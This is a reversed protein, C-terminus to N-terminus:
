KKETSPTAETISDFSVLVANTTVSNGIYFVGEGDIVYASCYLEQSKHAEETIGTVKVNYVNYATASFSMSIAGDVASLSDNILKGDTSVTKKAAIIGYSVTNGTIGEYLAIAEKNAVFGYDFFTGGLEKSYGKNTFLAETLVEVVEDGCNECTGTKCYNSLYKEGDFGYTPEGFNHENSYFARCANYGYVVYNKNEQAATDKYFQDDKTEDWEVATANVFKGNNKLTTLIAKLAEYDEYDGTYFIVMGTSGSDFLHSGATPVMTNSMYVYKLSTCGWLMSQVNYTDLGKGANAGLRITELSSCAQFAREGLNVVSNPVTIEKLGKCNNFANMEITELRSNESFNVDTLSICNYFAFGNNSHNSGKIITVSAPIDVSRLNRADYFSVNSITTFPAEDPIECHIIPTSQAIRSPLDTLTNPLRLFLLNSHDSAFSYADGYGSDSMSFTLIGSNDPFYASVISLEKNKDVYKYVGKDFLSAHTGTQDLTQFSAVTRVVNGDADTEEGTLYWTLAVGDKDTKPFSGTYSEFVRDANEDQATFLIEGDATKYIVAASASIAFICTLLSVLLITFLIKKKM